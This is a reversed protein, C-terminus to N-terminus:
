PHYTLADADEPLDERSIAIVEVYFHTSVDDHLAYIYNAPDNEYAFVFYGEGWTVGTITDAIAYAPRASQVISAILCEGSFDWSEYYPIGPCYSAMFASWDDETVIIKTGFAAFAERKATDDWPVASFGRYIHWFDISETKPIDPVTDSLPLGNPQEASNGQEPLVIQNETTQVSVSETGPQSVGVSCASLLCALYLLTIWLACHYIKKM